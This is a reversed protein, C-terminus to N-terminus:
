PRTTLWARRDRSSCHSVSFARDPWLLATIDRLKARLPGGRSPHPAPPAASYERPLGYRLWAAMLCSVRSCATDQPRRPPRSPLGSNPLTTCFSQGSAFVTRTCLSGSAFQVKNADEKLATDLHELEEDRFRKIIEILKDVRDSPLQMLTRLQSKTPLCNTLRASM